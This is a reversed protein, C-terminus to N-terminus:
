RGLVLLQQMLEDATRIVRSSASYGTSAQILDIFEQGLDVNSLELAGSVVRGAGLSQPAGIVPAGSNTGVTFLSNGADVLGEANAFTALAVQGLTRTLGNTFVGTILGDSGVSYSTLTGIPAGDQFPSAIQSELDALASVGGGEGFELAVSLPTQAGTGARDISVSAPSGSALQGFNDFGLLGTGVSLDLDTDDASEAFWRWSTGDDSASELVMSLDVSLATGLSDFAVFTTRVSEGDAAGDKEAVLPSGLSSGGADLLRLNETAVDLDNVTGTNGTITLVGSTADLSVGPTAGNPNAGADGALGLAQDLFDLLEQVTTTAAIALSATPLVKGGKSAGSLELTQGDAFLATGSGPQQPDEIEVLLSSTELVNPPTPLVSAGAILGLGATDTGMLGISAGRTAVSGAANLNGTLQAETTAQALTLSGLPIAIAGLQGVALNFSEDVGFGQLREGSITVLENDENQRFAGARTFFRDEGRDVVFFGDGEIAMDRQDGTANVSGQRFDRQVGGIAVGLGIQSPNTGGTTTGPESGEHLTRSFQSQFMLRSSKFATTNVNAINNGIVDLDRAHANLGSLGTFLATTSAM